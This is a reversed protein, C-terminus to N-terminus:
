SEKPPLVYITLVGIWGLFLGYAWGNLRNRAKGISITIGIPLIWVVFMWFALDLLDLAPAM